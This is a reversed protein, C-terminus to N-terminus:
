AAAAVSGAEPAGVIPKAEQAGHLFLAWYLFIALLFNAIPGASVIAFRKWVPQRNFARPLEEADVPGEQEDLMKVYGGIPLIAVAWETRDRGLRRLWVPRGFGVSFRLVKVRCLCAALYHGYEHFVILIALAVIFAATTFLINM